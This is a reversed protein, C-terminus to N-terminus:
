ITELKHRREAIKIDEFYDSYKNDVYDYFTYGVNDKPKSDMFAYYSAPYKLVWYQKGKFFKVEKIIFNKKCKM